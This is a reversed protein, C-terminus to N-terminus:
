VLSQLEPSLQGVLGRCRPWRPSTYPGMVEDYRKVQSKV